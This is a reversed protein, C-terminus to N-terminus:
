FKCNMLEGITGGSCGRLEYRHFSVYKTEDKMREIFPIQFGAERWEYAFGPGMLDMKPYIKRVAKVYEEYEDFFDPAKWSTPRAGHKYLHDPENGIKTHANQSSHLCATWAWRFRPQL